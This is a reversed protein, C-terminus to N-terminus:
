MCLCACVCGVSQEVHGSFYNTFITVSSLPLLLVRYLTMDRCRFQYPSLLMRRKVSNILRNCTCEGFSFRYLLLLTSLDRFDEAKCVVRKTINGFVIM